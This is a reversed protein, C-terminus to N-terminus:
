GGSRVQGDRRGGRQSDHDDGDGFGNLRDDDPSLIIRGADLLEWVQDVVPVERRGDSGDTRAQSSSLIAALAGSTDNMWEVSGDVRLVNVGDDHALEFRDRISNTVLARRAPMSSLYEHGDVLRFQYNGVIQGPEGLFQDRYVDLTHEGDYSPCYYLSPESVYEREFLKGLGDWRQRDSRGYLFKRHSSDVRLYVTDEPSFEYTEDEASFVTTPLKGDHEFAFMQQALGLQRLNNACRIVNAREKAGMIAPLLIAVLLALVAMSVLLDFLSFGRARAGRPDIRDQLNSGM